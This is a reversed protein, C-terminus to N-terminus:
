VAVGGPPAGGDPPVGGENHILVQNWRRLVFSEVAFHAGAGDACSDRLKEAQRERGRWEKGVAGTVSTRKAQLYSSRAPELGSVDLHRGTETRSM